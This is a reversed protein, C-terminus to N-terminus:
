PGSWKGDKGKQIYGMTAPDISKDQVGSVGFAYGKADGKKWAPNGGTKPDYTVQNIYNSGEWRSYGESGIVIGALLGLLERLNNTVGGHRLILIAAAVVFNAISDYGVYIATPAFNGLCVANIWYGDEGGGRRVYCFAKKADIGVHEGDKTTKHEKPFYNWPDKFFMNNGESTMAMYNVLLSALLGGIMVDVYQQIPASPGAVFRGIQGGVAASVSPLIALDSMEKKKANGGAFPPKATLTAWEGSM